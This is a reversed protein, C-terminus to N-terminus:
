PQICRVSSGYPKLSYFMGCESSDFNIFWSQTNSAQTSSYYGGFIGRDSLLGDYYRIFGAAHMKLASEWPDNWNLWEGANDVNDWETSTPIRWGAGLEIACPDNALIWGANEDISTITWSPTVTTGTHKYGQQRNFQWYWGASPETADNVANAQHDSGLNSTIWCKGPEGPIGTVTGYRVTKSVPAVNGAVHDIYLSDTGCTFAPTTDNLAVSNSYGGCSDYAWIYRTYSTGCDLGSEINFLSDLMDYATFYDDTTNWKYGAAGTVATWKWTIRNCSVVHFGATPPMPTTAEPCQICRVSGASWKQWTSDAYCSSNNFRFMWASTATWSGNGWYRGNTGRQTLAGDAGNLYGAAHLKLDSGWPGNSNSWNWGPGSDINKWETGTPIRWRGGLEIACPDNKSTWTSNESINTIWATNPTRTTGDHKYGQLKNFQWYWGAPAEKNDNKSTAQQDAGLNRTIWCKDPEGPIGNITGYAVTKSVPATNGAVHIVELADGCGFWTATHDYNRWEKGDFYVPKNATLNYVMLGVDPSPIALIQSGTLRPQLYGRDSFKIELGASPHAQTSDNSVAVQAALWANLFLGAVITLFLKKM